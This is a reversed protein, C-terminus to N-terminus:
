YIWSLFAEGKDTYVRISMDGQYDTHQKVLQEVKAIDGSYNFIFSQAFLYVSSENSKVIDGNEGITFRNYYGPIYSRKEAGLDILDDIFEQILASADQVRYYGITGWITHEPTKNFSTNTFNFAPNDEFDVRYSDSSVILEGTHTVEGVSLNLNYVGDSLPGLDITASAPKLIAKCDDPIIIREFSIDISNLSQRHVIDIYYHDCTYSRETQVDLQLKKHQGLVEIMKINIESDIDLYAGFNKRNCSVMTGFTFASVLMVPLIRKM